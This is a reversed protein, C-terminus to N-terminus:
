WGEEVGGELWASRKWEVKWGAGVWAGRGGVKGDSDRHEEREQQPFTFYFQYTGDPNHVVNYTVENFTSLVPLEEQDPVPLAVGLSVGLM